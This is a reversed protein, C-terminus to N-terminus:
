KEVSCLWQFGFQRSVGFWFYIGMAEAIQLDGRELAAFYANDLRKEFVDAVNETFNKNENFHQKVFDILQQVTIDSM